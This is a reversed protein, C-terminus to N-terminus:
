AQRGGKELGRASRRRRRTLALDALGPVFYFPLLAGWALGTAFRVGIPSAWLGLLGALGDVALPLVSLLFRRAPPLASRSFGRILPYLALGAAFGAYVGLCRGCVALPHGHFTFCRGPIQHCIPAFVAYLFRAAGARGSGALQPALFIAALWVATGAATLAYVARVTGRDPPITV